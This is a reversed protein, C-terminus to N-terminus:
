GEATLMGQKMRYFRYRNRVFASDHTAVIVCKGSRYQEDLFNRVIEANDEDLNGTPEDAIIIEPAAYVARALEARRYEGGSLQEPCSDAVDGLGLRSLIEYLREENVSFGNITQPFVINESVTFNGLLGGNQMVYGIESNRLKTRRGERLSFIDSDNIFVTGSEPRSIGSLCNLLTTKGSGSEGFICVFEGGSIRLNVNNLADFSKNQRIYKRGINKAELTM